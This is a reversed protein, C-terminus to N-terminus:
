HLHNRHTNACIIISSTVRDRKTFPTHIINMTEKHYMYTHHTHAHSQIHTPWGRATFFTFVHTYVHIHHIICTQICQTCHTVHILLTVHTHMNIDIQIHMQSLLTHMCTHHTTSTHRHMHDHACIQKHTTHQAHTYM